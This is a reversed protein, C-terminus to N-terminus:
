DISFSANNPMPQVTISRLDVSGRSLQILCPEGRKDIGRSQQRYGVYSARISDVGRALVLEFNGQEDTLVTKGKEGASVAANELPEGTGKDIVRGKVIIQGIASSFIFLLGICM